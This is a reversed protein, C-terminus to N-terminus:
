ATHVLYCVLSILNNMSFYKSLSHDFIYIFKIVDYYAVCTVEEAQRKETPSLVLEGRRHQRNRNTSLFVTNISAM